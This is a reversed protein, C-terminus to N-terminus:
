FTYINHSKIYALGMLIADSEDDTVKEGYKELIMEKSKKKAETRNRAKLGIIKRWELALYYQYPIKLSQCILSIGYFLGSLKKHTEVNRQQQINEYVVFDINNEKILNSIDRLMYYLREEYTDVLINKKIKGYSILKDGNFIAYGTTTTSQDLALIRM